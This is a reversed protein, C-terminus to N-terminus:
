GGRCALLHVPSLSSDPARTAPQNGGDLLATVWCRLSTRELPDAGQEACWTLQFRVGDAYAKLTQASKRDARRSLLWSATVPELNPSATRKPV